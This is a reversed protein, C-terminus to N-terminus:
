TIKIKVIIQLTNRREYATNKNTEFTQHLEHKIQKFAYYMQHNQYMENHIDIHAYFYMSVFVCNVHCYTSFNLNIHDDHAVDFSVASFDHDFDNIHFASILFISQIHLVNEMGDYPILHDYRSAIVYM